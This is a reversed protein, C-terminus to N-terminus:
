NDASITGTVSEGYGAEFLWVLLRWHLHILIQQSSGRATDYGHWFNQFDYENAFPTTKLAEVFTHNCQQMSAQGNDAYVMLNLCGLVDHSVIPSRMSLEISLEKAFLAVKIGKILQESLPTM